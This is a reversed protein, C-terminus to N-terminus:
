AGRDAFRYRTKVPVGASAPCGTANSRIVVRRGGRRWTGSSGAGVLVLGGSQPDPPAWSNGFYEVDGGACPGAFTGTLNPGQKWGLVDIEEPDGANSSSGSWDVFFRPTLVSRETPDITAASGAAVAALTASAVM